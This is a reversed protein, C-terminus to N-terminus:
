RAAPKDHRWRQIHQAAGPLGLTVSAFGKGAALMKRTAENQADLRRDTTMAPKFRPPWNHLRVLATFHGPPYEAAAAAPKQTKTM